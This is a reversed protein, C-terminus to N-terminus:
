FGNSLDKSLAQEIEPTAERLGDTIFPRAKM